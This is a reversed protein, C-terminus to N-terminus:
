RSIKQEFALRLIVEATIPKTLSAVNHLTKENAPPGGPVQDGYYYASWTIKGNELVAAM